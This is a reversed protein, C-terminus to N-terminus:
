EAPERELAEFRPLYQRLFDIAVRVEGALEAPRILSGNPAVRIQVDVIAKGDMFKMAAAVVQSMYRAVHEEEPLDAPVWREPRDSLDITLSRWADATYPVPDAEYKFVDGTDPDRITTVISPSKAGQKLAINRSDKLGGLVEKSKFYGEVEDYLNKFGIRHTYQAKLAFTTSRFASLFASLYFMYEKTGVNCSELREWFFEAEDIKYATYM